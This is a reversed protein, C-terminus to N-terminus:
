QVKVPVPAAVRRAARARLGVALGAAILAMVASGYFGVSWSGSKEYLFTGFWGGILAAVGKASYLVGYNSTAHRTGFYDGSTAPFLSFIEGWTFYVLILTVVFWTASLHGLTVVM